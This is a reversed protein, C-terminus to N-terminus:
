ESKEREWILKIAEKHSNNMFLIIYKKLYQEFFSSNWGWIAM